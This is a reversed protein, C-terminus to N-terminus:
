RWANSRLFTQHVWASANFVRNSMCQFNPSRVSRYQVAKRFTHSKM